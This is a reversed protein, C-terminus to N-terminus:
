TSPHQRKEALRQSFSHIKGNKTELQTNAFHLKKKLNSNEHDIEDFDHQFQKTGNLRDVEATLEKIKNEQTLALQTSLKLKSKNQQLESELDQIISNGKNVEHSTSNVTQSISKLQSELEDVKRELSQKELSDRHNESKLREMANTRAKLEEELHSIRGKSIGLQNQFSNFDNTMQQQSHFQNGLDSQLQQVQTELNSNQQRLSSVQSKLIGNESTLTYLNQKTSKESENLALQLKEIEKEYHGNSIKQDEAFKNQSTIQKKNAEELLGQIEKIKLGYQIIETQSKQELATLKEKLQTNAQILELIKSALYQNKVDLSPITMKLKLHTIARWPTIEVLKFNNESDLIKTWENKSLLVKFHDVFEDYDMRLDQEKVLDAFVAPTMNFQALYTPNLPDSITISIHNKVVIELSLQCLENDKQVKLNFFM